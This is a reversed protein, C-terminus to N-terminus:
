QVRVVGRQAPDMEAFLVPPSACVTRHPPAIQHDGGTCAGHQPRAHLQLASAGCQVEPRRHQLVGVGPRIGALPHTSPSNPSIFLPRRYIVRRGCIVKLETSYKININIIFIIILGKCLSM